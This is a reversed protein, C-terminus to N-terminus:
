FFKLDSQKKKDASADVLRQLQGRSLVSQSRYGCSVVLRHYSDTCDLIQLLDEANLRRTIKGGKNRRIMGKARKAIETYVSKVFDQTVASLATELADPSALAVRSFLPHLAGKVGRVVRGTYVPKKAAVISNKGM